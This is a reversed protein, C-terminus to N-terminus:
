IKIFSLVNPSPREIRIGIRIYLPLLALVPVYADIEDKEILAQRSAHVIIRSSLGVQQATIIHRERGIASRGSKHIHTRHLIGTQLNIQSPIRDLCLFRTIGDSKDAGGGIITKDGKGILHM